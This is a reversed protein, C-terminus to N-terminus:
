FKVFSTVTRFHLIKTVLHLRTTRWRSLDENALLLIYAPTITRAKRKGTKILSRVQSVEAENLDVMDKKAM